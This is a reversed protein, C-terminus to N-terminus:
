FLSTKINPQRRLRQALMLVDNNWRTDAFVLRQSLAPEISPCRRLRHALM